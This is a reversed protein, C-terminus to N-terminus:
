RDMTHMKYYEELYMLIEQPDFDLFMENPLTEVMGDREITTTMEVGPIEGTDDIFNWNSFKKVYEKRRKITKINEPTYMDFSM